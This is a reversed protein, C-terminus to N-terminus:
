YCNDAAVAARVTLTANVITVVKKAGATNTLCLASGSSGHVVITGTGQGVKNIVLKSGSQTGTSYINGTVELAQTAATTKGVAMTGTVISNGAVYLKTAAALSAMVSVSAAITIVQNFRTGAM